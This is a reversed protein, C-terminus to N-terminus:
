KRRDRWDALAQAARTQAKVLDVLAAHLEDDTQMLELLREEFTKTRARAIKM